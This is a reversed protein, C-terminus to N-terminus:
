DEARWNGDKLMRDVKEVIMALRKTPPFEGDGALREIRLLGMLVQYNNLGTKTEATEM